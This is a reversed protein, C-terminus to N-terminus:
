GGAIVTLTPLSTLSLGLAQLAALSIRSGAGAAGGSPRLTVETSRGDESVVSGPMEVSVLSTELWLGPSSPDGLSAVTTGLYGSAVAAPPAAGGDSAGAETAPRETPRPTAADPAVATSPAADGGRLFALRDGCASVALVLTLSIVAHKM